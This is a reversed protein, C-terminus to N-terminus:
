WNDEAQEFASVYPFWHTSTPLLSDPMSFLTQFILLVNSDAKAKVLLNACPASPGGQSDRSLRMPHVALSGRHGCM